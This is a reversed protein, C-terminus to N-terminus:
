FKMESILYKFYCGMLSRGNSIMSFNHAITGRTIEEWPGGTENIWLRRIRIYFYISLSYFNDFSHRIRNM